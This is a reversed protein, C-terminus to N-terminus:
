DSCISKIKHPTLDRVQHHFLHLYASIRSISSTSLRLDLPFSHDREDNIDALSKLANKISGLFRRDM